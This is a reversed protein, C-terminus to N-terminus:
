KNTYYFEGYGYYVKYFEGLFEPASNTEINEYIPEKVVNGKSDIVGWKNHIKIGAFGYENFETVKDYSYEVVINGNRDVFGWKNDKKSAILANDKFVEKTELIKGNFDLYKDGEKSYVKLYEDEKYIYGDKVSYVLELNTSYFDTMKEKLIKAEIVNTNDIKQLVEYKLEIKVEEKSNIVGLKGSKNSAIFYDEFLYEIYSYKNEVVEENQGNIIGYFGDENITIQYNENQTKLIATYKLDKVIEGLM